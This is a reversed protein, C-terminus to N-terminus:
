QVTFGPVGDYFHGATQVEKAWAILVVTTMREPSDPLGLVGLLALVVARCRPEEPSALDVFTWLVRAVRWDFGDVFGDRRRRWFFDDRRRLETPSAPPDAGPATAGTNARGGRGPGDAAADRRAARRRGTGGPRGWRRPRPETGERQQFILLLLFPPPTAADTGGSPPHTATAGDAEM